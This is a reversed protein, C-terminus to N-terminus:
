FPHMNRRTTPMTWNRGTRIWGVKPGKASGPPASAMTATEGITIVALGALVIRRNISSTQATTETM